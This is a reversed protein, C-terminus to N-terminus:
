IVSPHHCTVQWIIKVWIGALFWFLCVRLNLVCQCVTWIHVIHWLCYHLVSAFTCSPQFGYLNTLYKLSWLEDPILGIVDIAYVKRCKLLIFFLCADLFIWSKDWFIVLVCLSQIAGWIVLQGTLVRTGSVKSAHAFPIPCPSNTRSLNDSLFPSLVNCFL